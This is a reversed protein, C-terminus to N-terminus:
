GGNGTNAAASKDAYKFETAVVIVLDGYTTSLVLSCIQALLFMEQIIVVKWVMLKVCFRLSYFKLLYVRVATKSLLVAGLHIVMNIKDHSYKLKRKHLQQEEYKYKDRDKM